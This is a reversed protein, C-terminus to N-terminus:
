SLLHCLCAIHVLYLTILHPLLQALNSHTHKMDRLPIPLYETSVMKGVAVCLGVNGSKRANLSVISFISLYFYFSHPFFSAIYIDHPLLSQIFIISLYLSRTIFYLRLPATYLINLIIPM